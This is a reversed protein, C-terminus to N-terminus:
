MHQSRTEKITENKGNVTSTVLTPVPTLSDPVFGAEGWAM